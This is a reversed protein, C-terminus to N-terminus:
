VALGCDNVRLVGSLFYFKRQPEEGFGFGQGHSSRSGLDKRGVIGAWARVLGPHDDVDVPLECTRVAAVAVTISLRGKFTAGGFLTIM